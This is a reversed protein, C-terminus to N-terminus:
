VDWSAVRQVILDGGKIRYAQDVVVTTESLLQKNLLFLRSDL